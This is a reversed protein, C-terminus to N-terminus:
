NIPGSRAWGKWLSRGTRPFRVKIQIKAEKFLGYREVLELIGCLAFISCNLAMTVTVFWFMEGYDIVQLLLSYM